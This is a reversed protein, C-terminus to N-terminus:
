KYFDTSHQIKKYLINILQIKKQAIIEFMFLIM